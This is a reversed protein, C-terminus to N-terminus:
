GTLIPKSRGRRQFTGNMSITPRPSQIPTCAKKPRWYSIRAGIGAFGKDDGKLTALLREYYDRQETYQDMLSDVLATDSLLVPVRVIRTVQKGPVEVTDRPITAKLSDINVPLYRVVEPATGKCGRFLLAGLLFAPVAAVLLWFPKIGTTASM